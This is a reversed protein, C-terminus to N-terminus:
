RTKITGNPQFAPSATASSLMPEEGSPTYVQVFGVSGGGGGATGPNTTPKGGVTPPRSGVGGDGGHGEGNEPTGGPAAMTDSALGDLGNTGFALNARCGAGGGGGNAFVGGTVVVKKGQLVIYGGAGGGFGPGCIGIATPGGSGGGGGARVTGTVSVAGRCAILTAAGGGGGGGGSSLNAEQSSRWAAAGGLLVALFAPDSTAIGGNNAGGDASASGGSAGPTKGGAGGAAVHVTPSSVLTGGGSLVLGAGPGNVVGKAGVDLVGGITLEDDAVFAISRGVNEPKVTDAKGTIRLEADATIEIKRFRVVCIGPAGTQAVIGGNCNSDLNPDFSASSSIILTESEAPLDCVDPLYRPEIYGCHPAPETKCGLECPVREYGDGTANCTLADDGLCTEITGATCSVAICTGPEGSITGEVDCYPFDPNLCTGSSCAKTPNPTTCAAGFLVAAVCISWMFRLYGLSQKQVNKLDSM